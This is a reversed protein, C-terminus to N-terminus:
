KITSVKKRGNRNKNSNEFRSNSSYIISSFWRKFTAKRRIKKKHILNGIKEKFLEITKKDKKIQGYLQKSIKKHQKM